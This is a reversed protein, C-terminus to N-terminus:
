RFDRSKLADALGLPLAELRQALLNTVGQHRELLGRVRVAPAGRAVKRYRKWV